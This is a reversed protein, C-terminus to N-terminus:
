AAYYYTWDSSRSCGTHMHHIAEDADMTFKLPLAQLHLRMFSALLLYAEQWKLTAM